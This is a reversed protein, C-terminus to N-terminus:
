SKSKSKIRKKSRNTDFRIKSLNNFYTRFDSSRNMRCGSKRRAIGKLYLILKRTIWMWLFSRGVMSKDQTRFCQISKLLLIFSALGMMIYSQTIFLIMLLMLQNRNKLVSFEQFCNSQTSKKCDNTSFKQKKRYLKLPKLSIQLRQNRKKTNKWDIRMTLSSQSSKKMTRLKLWISM